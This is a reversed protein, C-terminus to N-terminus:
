EIKPSSYVESGCETVAGVSGDDDRDSHDSSTIRGFETMGWVQSIIADEHLFGYTAKRLEGSLPTGACWIRRLTRLALPSIRQRIISTLMAPVVAIESIKFRQLAGVFGEIESRRMIYTTAGYHFASIQVFSAGFSHFLPLSVLRMVAYPKVTSERMAIGSAVLAYHSSAAVKPLGTTGSTSQLVAITSKATAEDNIRLWDKEGHQLLDSWPRCSNLGSEAGNTGLVFTKTLSIAAKTAPLADEWLGAETIFFKPETISVLHELELAKYAPNSGVFVGGAGIIGYYLIPYLISNFAHVCVVDGSELGAAKFGAILKRTM